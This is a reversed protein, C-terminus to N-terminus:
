DLGCLHMFKRFQAKSAYRYSGQTKNYDHYFGVEDIWAYRSIKELQIITSKGIICYLEYAKYAEIFERFSDQDSRLLDQWYKRTYLVQVKEHM